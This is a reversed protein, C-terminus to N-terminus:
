WTPLTLIGGDVVLNVGTVYRALPSVLFLVADAVDGPEVLRGLPVKALWRRVGDPWDDELRPRRVLGPSVANVRIGHPGLELAAARTHMLVAAKSASYHSHGPAPQLGEISGVNVISGAIGNATMVRAAERTCLFVGRTNVDFMDDWDSASLAVLPEVPQVGACNVLIDLLGLADVTSDVAQRVSAEDSVDVGIAEAVGGRARIRGVTGEPGDDPHRAAVGVAAGAEALRAAIVAGIGSTGGTVMAVRGSLDLARVLDPEGGSASRTDDVASM